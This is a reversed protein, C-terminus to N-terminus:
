PFAQTVGGGIGVGGLDSAQGKSPGFEADCGM